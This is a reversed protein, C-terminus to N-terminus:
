IVGTQGDWIEFDGVILVEVIDTIAPRTDAAEAREVIVVVRTDEVHEKPGEENEKPLELAVPVVM